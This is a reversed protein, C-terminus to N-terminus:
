ITESSHRLRIGIWFGIINVIIDSVKNINSEIAFEFPLYLELIEWGLSIVLFIYWNTTIFRAIFGWQLFHGLSYLNLLAM